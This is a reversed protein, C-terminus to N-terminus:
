YRGLLTYEQRDPGEICRAKAGKQFAQFAELALMPNEPLGEELTVVHTFGSGEADRLVAYRVGAPQERALADFVRRILAANEEAAEPRTRYRIVYTTM